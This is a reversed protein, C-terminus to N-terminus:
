GGKLVRVSESEASLDGFIRVIALIVDPEKAVKAQRLAAALDLLLTKRIITVRPQQAQM